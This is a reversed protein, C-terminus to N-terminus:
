VRTRSSREENEGMKTTKKQKKKKKFFLTKNQESSLYFSFIILSLCLLDVADVVRGMASHTVLAVARFQVRGLM